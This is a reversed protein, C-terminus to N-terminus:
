NLSKCAKTNPVTATLGPSRYIVTVLGYSCVEVSNYTYSNM